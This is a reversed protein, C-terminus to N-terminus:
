GQSRQARSEALAKYFGRQELAEQINRPPTKNTNAQTTAAPQGNTPSPTVSETRQQALKGYKASQQKHWKEGKAAERQAFKTIFQELDPIEVGAKQNAIFWERADQKFDDRVEGAFEHKDAVRDLIVPWERQLQQTRSQTQAQQQLNGRIGDSIFKARSDYKGELERISLNRITQEARYHSADFKAQQYERHARDLEVPNDKVEPLEKYRKWFAEAEQAQRLNTAIESIEATYQQFEAVMNRCEEDRDWAQTVIADVNQPPEPQAAPNDVQETGNKGLRNNYELMRDAVKQLHDPTVPSSGDWGAIQLAKRQSESWSSVDVGNSPTSAAPSPTDTQATQPAPVDPTSSPATLPASEVASPAAPAQPTAVAPSAM